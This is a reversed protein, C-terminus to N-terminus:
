VIYLSPIGSYYNSWITGSFEYFLLLHNNDPATQYGLQNQIFYKTLRHRSPQYDLTSDIMGATMPCVSDTSIWCWYCCCCCWYCCYCSKPSQSQTSDHASVGGGRRQRRQLRAATVETASSSMLALNIDSDCTLLVMEWVFLCPLLLLLLTFNVM